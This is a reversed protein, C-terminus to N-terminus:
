VGMPARLRLKRAGRAGTVEVAEVAGFVEYAAKKPLSRVVEIEVPEETANAVVLFGAGVRDPDGGDGLEILPPDEGGTGDGLNILPPDDGSGALDLRFPDAVAVLRLEEGDRLELAGLPEPLVGEEGAGVRSPEVDQRGNSIALVDATLNHVKM